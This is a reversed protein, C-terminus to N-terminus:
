RKKKRRDPLRGALMEDAYCGGCIKGESFLIKEGCIRCHRKRTELFFMAIIVILLGVMVIFSLREFQSILGLNSLIFDM